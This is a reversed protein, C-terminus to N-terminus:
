SYCYFWGADEAAKIAAQYQDMNEMDKPMGRWDLGQEDMLEKRSEMAKKWSERGVMREHWAKLNPFGEFKKEPPCQLLDDTRDNWTTFALDAYTMRDGVLWTRGELHGDLVGQIRRIEAQYRSIASPLKEAHLVVFWGAQGFYPGQGSM